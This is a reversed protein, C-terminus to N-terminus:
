WQRRNWSNARSGSHQSNRSTHDRWSSSWSESHAWSNSWQSSRSDSSTDRSWSESGRSNERASSYYNRRSDPSRSRASSPTERSRWPTNAFKDGEVEHWDSSDWRQEGEAVADAQAASYAQADAHQSSSDGLAHGFRRQDSSSSAAESAETHIKLYDKKIRKGDEVLKNYGPLDRIPGLTNKQEQTLSSSYRVCLDVKPVCHRSTVDYQENPDKPERWVLMTPLLEEFADIGGPFDHKVNEAFGEDHKYRDELNLEEGERKGLARRTEEYIGDSKLKDIWRKIQKVSYKRCLQHLDGKNLLAATSNSRYSGIHDGRSRRSHDVTLEILDEAVTGVSEALAQLKKVGEPDDRFRDGSCHAWESSMHQRVELKNLNKAKLNLRRCFPCTIVYDTIMKGCECEIDLPRSRLSAEKAQQSEKLKKVATGEAGVQTTRAAVTGGKEVREISTDTNIIEWDLPLPQDDARAILVGGIVIVHDNTINTIDDDGTLDIIPTQRVTQTSNERNKEMARRENFNDEPTKGSDYVIKWGQYDKRQIWQQM